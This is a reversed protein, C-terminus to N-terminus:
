FPTFTAINSFSCLRSSIFSYRKSQSKSQSSCYRIKQIKHLKVIINFRFTEAAFLFSFLYISQVTPTSKTTTITTIQSKRLYMMDHLTKASLALDTYLQNSIINNSVLVFRVCGDFLLLVREEKEETIHQKRTDIVFIKSNFLQTHSKKRETILNSISPTLHDKKREKKRRTHTDDRRKKREKM